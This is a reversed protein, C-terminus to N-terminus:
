GTDLQVGFPHGPLSEFHRSLQDISNLMPTLGLDAIMDTDGRMHGAFVMITPSPGLAERLAAGEEAVAVFFTRCGAHALARAVRAAGTGYGDAKVVAATEGGHLSALTRWNAIVADLDITLTGTSM